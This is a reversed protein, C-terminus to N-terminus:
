LWGGILLVLLVQSAVRLNFYLAGYLTGGVFTFYAVLLLLIVERPSTQSSTRM